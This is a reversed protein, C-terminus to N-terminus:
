FYLTGYAVSFIYVISIFSLVGQFINRNGSQHYYIFKLQALYKILIESQISNLPAKLIIAMPSVQCNDGSDVKYDVCLKM